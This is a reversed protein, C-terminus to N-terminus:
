EHDERSDQSSNFKKGWLAELRKKIKEEFGNETPHYFQRGILRPPLYIEDVFHGPYNHPYKYGKGYGQNAMLRTVPNRFRLPVEDYGGKQTEKKVETYAKYISNSKPAACLYVVTEALSLDCEPMGLFHCSQYASVALPLANPDSLGVDETAVRILRRAIYLPDEGGELMRALYYLAANPDSGRISKHLASILDYHEERNKDYRLVLRQTAEHIHDPTIKGYNAIETALSLINLASRADGQAFEAIEKLVDESIVLNLKGYGREPDNVARKLIEMINERSLKDFKVVKCRSLLAANIEFSPNETTSGILIIDANEVYPLLVDQQSRNFRHIEDVFVVTREGSKRKRGKADELIKKLDVSGKVAASFYIYRGSTMNRIIEGLSTKGSGPPGSLIMSLLHDTEVAHRLWTGKGLIKEEGVFEDLTRPRMRAALPLNSEQWLNVQDM